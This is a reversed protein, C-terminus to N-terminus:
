GSMKELVGQIENLLVEGDLGQKHIIKSVTEQLRNAEKSDLSKATLVIVPIQNLLPDKRLQEIVGFGDLRPMLLDLLIADPPSKAIAELAEEGDQAASIEYQSDELLQRVMDVVQPDDDVVLLRNPQKGQNVRALRQLAALMDAQDFPKVLYDAAGLRYGLDKNDIISLLIVPISRTEPDSKLEHLVQWGDKNPMLIDLTIAFPKLSRAKQVGEYGSNAGTVLYGAEALNESLLYIVDPDDDIALVVPKGSGSVPEV